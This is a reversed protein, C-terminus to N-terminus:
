MTHHVRQQLRRKITSKSVSVGVEQLTNKIQDVTTFPIKKTSKAVGSTKTIERIPKNQYKLRIIARKVSLSLEKSKM